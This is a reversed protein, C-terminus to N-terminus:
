RGPIRDLSPRTAQAKVRSPDVALPFVGTRAFGFHNSSGAPQLESVGLALDSTARWRRCAGRRALLALRFLAPDYPAFFAAPTV